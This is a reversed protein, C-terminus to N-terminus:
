VAEPIGKGDRKLMAKILAAIGGEAEARQLEPDNSVVSHDRHLLFKSLTPGWKNVFVGIFHRERAQWEARTEPGSWTSRGGFHLLYSGEAVVM